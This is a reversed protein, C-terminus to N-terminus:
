VARKAEREKKRDLMGSVSVAWIEGFQTGLQTMQQDNFAFINVGKAPGVRTAAHPVENASYYLLVKGKQPTVPGRGYILYPAVELINRVRTKRGMQPGGPWAHTYNVSGLEVEMKVGDTSLIKVSATQISKQMPNKAEKEAYNGKRGKKWNELMAKKVTEEIAKRQQESIVQRASFQGKNNPQGRFQPNKTLPNIQGGFPTQVLHQNRPLRTEGTNTRLANDPILGFPDTKLADAIQQHSAQHATQGQRNFLATTKQWEQHQLAQATAQERRRDRYQDFLGQAIIEHIERNSLGPEELRMERAREGITRTYRRLFADVQFRNGTVSEKLFKYRLAERKAVEAGHTATMKELWKEYQDFAAM